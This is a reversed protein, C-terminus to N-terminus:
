NASWSGGQTKKMAAMGAPTWTLIEAKAPVRGTMAIVDVAALAGARFALLLTEDITRKIEDLQIEEPTKM